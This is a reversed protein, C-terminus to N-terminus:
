AEDEPTPPQDGPEDGQDDDTDTDKGKIGFKARTAENTALLGDVTAERQKVETDGLEVVEAEIAKEDTSNLDQLMAKVVKMRIMKTATAGVGVEIVSKADNVIDMVQQTNFNDPHNITVKAADFAAKGKLGFKAAFFMRAAWNDIRQAEDALNALRHSLGEAKLSRSGASEADKSDTEWPLDARRFMGRECAEIREMYNEVPGSEPAIYSASGRTFMVADAGVHNGMRNRADGPKEDEGLEVTLLSFVQSRFLERLESTLNFHETHVRPDGLVSRGIIPIVARRRAYWLSVPLVGMGHRGTAVKSGKTDYKTWSDRNWIYYVNNGVISPQWLSGREEVEVLKVQQLVNYPALWDLMDPPVYCRLVPQGLDALTPQTKQGKPTANTRKQTPNTQMRDMVVAVHGFVNTLIQHQSLWDDIHTGFGDVDDWWEQLPSVTKDTIGGGEVKRIIGPTYQYTVLTDVITEALNEYSAILKRQTFKRKEGVVTNYDVSGDPHEKYLLERPHAVLATGDLFGGSGEYANGLDLWQALFTDYRPHTRRIAVEASSMKADKAMAGVTLPGAGLNSSVAEIAVQHVARQLASQLFVRYSM